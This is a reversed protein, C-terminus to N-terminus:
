RAGAKWADVFAAEEAELWVGVDQALYLLDGPASDPVLSRLPAPLLLEVHHAARRAALVRVADGHRPRGGHRLAAASAVLTAGILRHIPVAGTLRARLTRSALPDRSDIEAVPPPTPVSRETM